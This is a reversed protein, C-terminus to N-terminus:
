VKSWKMLELKAKLGSYTNQDIIHNIISSSTGSLIMENIDKEEIDSPWICINYGLDITKNMNKVIDKNRPENDYVYVIEPASSLLLNDRYLASDMSAVSNDIFCSDLPGEVVYVKKTFDLRDLGFLKTNEDKVKIIIYRKETKYIARGTIGLLNKNQDYFPIIIRRDNEMLEKTTEPLLEKIFSKFDPTYYFETFFKKPIKRNSLYKYAPHDRGLSEITPLKIIPASTIDIKFGPASQRVFAEDIKTNARGFTELNYEACLSPNVFKLLKAFSGSESCNHCTFLLHDKGAKQFVYFRAKQVIIGDM